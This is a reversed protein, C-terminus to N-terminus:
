LLLETTDDEQSANAGVAANTSIIESSGLTLGPPLDSAPIHLYSIENGTKRTVALHLSNAGAGIAVNSFESGGAFTPTYATFTPLGAPSLSDLRVIKIPDASQFVGLIGAVRPLGDAGVALDFSTSWGDSGPVKISDNPVGSSQSTVEAVRIEIPNDNRWAIWSRGGNSAARVTYNLNSASIGLPVGTGVRVNRGDPSRFGIFVGRELGEPVSRTSVFISLQTGDSLITSDAPNIAATDNLTQFNQSSWTIAQLPSILILLTSFIKM